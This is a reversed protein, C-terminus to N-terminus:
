QINKHGNIRSKLLGSLKFTVVRRAPLTIAEGTNPNRGTRNNKTKVEFNGFGQLKINEGAQLTNKVIDIVSELLDQSHKKNYGLKLHIREAIDMKTM